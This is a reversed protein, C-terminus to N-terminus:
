ARAERRMATSRAPKFANSVRVIEGIWGAPRRASEGRVPGPAVGDEEFRQALM